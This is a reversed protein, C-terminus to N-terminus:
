FIWVQFILLRICLQQESCRGFWRLFLNVLNMDNSGILLGSHPDFSNYGVLHWLDYNGDFLFPWQRSNLLDLEICIYPPCNVMLISLFIYTSKPLELISSYIYIDYVELKSQPIQKLLKGQYDIDHAPCLRSCSSVISLFVAYILSLIQISIPSMLALYIHYKFQSSSRYKQLCTFIGLLM